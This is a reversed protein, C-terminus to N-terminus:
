ILVANKYFVLMNKILFFIESVRFGVRLSTRPVLVSQWTFIDFEVCSVLVSTEAVVAHTSKLAVYM